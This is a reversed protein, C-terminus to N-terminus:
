RHYPLNKVISLARYIQEALLLRIMQHTFTMKSFSVAPLHRCEKPLGEPGGIVFLLKGSTAKLWGNLEEAFEESSFTEGRPDLAIVLDRPSRMLRRMLQSEKEVWETSLLTEGKLRKQYEEIERELFSNKTKGIGLILIHKAM